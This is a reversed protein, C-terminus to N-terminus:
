RLIRAMQSSSNDENPHVVRGCFLISQTNKSVISLLFPRNFKVTTRPEIGISTIGASIGTAAAAETGNEAVEILAKHVVQSVKLDKGGAIGSLDAQNQFVTRIGLEPLTRELDYHSSFSFKPLYLGIQTMRLSERWRTLTEPALAAEVTRMRGEDPLIFLASYNSNYRLEVVTCSLEEDRFYPTTLDSTKMMSVIVSRGDTLSFTSPRTDQPDFPTEWKAKFYIYNVLVMVVGVDLNSVLDVIKGQTKEMVYDNILKKAAAPDRFATSFAESAYLVEADDRFNYLLRMREDIFLANGVSLQLSNSPQSLTCLLHQFSRHVEAESIDTPNFKLGKLIETRTTGRAGLSLFALAISISLPSFIVNENPNRLALHKYLSFAFDAHVPALRLNDVPAHHHQDEQTVVGPHLKGGPLGHVSPCLGAVLLGLIPLFAM